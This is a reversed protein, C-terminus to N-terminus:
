RGERVSQLMEDFQVKISDFASQTSWALFKQYTTPAEIITVEYVVNYGEAGGRIEVQKAPHGNVVLNIPGQIEPASMDEMLDGVTIWIYKALNWGYLDIRDESLAVIFGNEQENQVQVNSLDSDLLETESWGPLVTFELSGDQSSVVRTGASTQGLVGMHWFPSLLTVAIVFVTIIQPM